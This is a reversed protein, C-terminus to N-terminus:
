SLGREPSGPSVLCPWDAERLQGIVADLEDLEVVVLLQPARSPSLGVAAALV